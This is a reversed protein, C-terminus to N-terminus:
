LSVSLTAPVLLPITSLGRFSVPLSSYVYNVRVFAGVQGEDIQWTDSLDWDSLLNLINLLNGSVHSLSITSFFPSDNQSNNRSISIHRGWLTQMQSSLPIRFAVSSQTDDSLDIDHVPSCIGWMHNEVLLDWKFQAKYTDLVSWLLVNVVLDFYCDSEVFLIFIEFWM